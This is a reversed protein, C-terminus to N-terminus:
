TSTFEGKELVPRPTAHFPDNHTATPDPLLKIAVDDLPVEQVGTVTFGGKVILPSPTALLRTSGYTPIETSPPGVPGV